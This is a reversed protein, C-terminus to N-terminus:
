KKKEADKAKLELGELATLSDKNGKVLAELLMTHRKASDRIEMTARASPDSDNAKADQLKKRNEDSMGHLVKDIKAAKEGPTKGMMAESLEKQLAKDAIGAKGLLRGVDNSSGGAMGSLEEKSANIGLISALAGMEKGAGKSLSTFREEVGIEYAAMEGAKGGQKALKRKEAISLAGIGEYTSSTDDYHQKHRFAKDISEKNNKYDDATFKGEKFFKQFAPMDEEGIPDSLDRTVLKDAMEAAAKAAPSLGERAKLTEGNVEYKGTKTNQVLYGSNVGAKQESQLKSSVRDYDAQFNASNIESLATKGNAALASLKKMGTNLDDNGGTIKNFEAVMAEQTKQQDGTAYKGAAVNADYDALASGYKSAVASGALAEVRGVDNDSLAVGGNRMASIHSLADGRAKEAIDGGEYMDAIMERSARDEFAQAYGRLKSSTGNLRDAFKQSGGAVDVAMKGADLLGASVDFDGGMLWKSGAVALSGSMSLAGAGVGAAKSYWSAQGWKGEESQNEGTGTLTRGLNEQWETTTMKSSGGPTYEFVQKAIQSAVQGSKEVGAKEQMTQLMAVRQTDTTDKANFKDLIAKATDSTKSKEALEARFNALTEQPSKGTSGLAALKMFETNSSGFSQVAVDTSGTMAAMKLKQNELYKGMNSSGGNSGAKLSTALGGFHRRYTSGTGGIEMRGAIEEIGETVHSTYIDMTSNFWSEVSATGAELIRAGAEQFKAQVHEKKLEIKRKLGEIGSTKAHRSKMDSLDKGHEAAQMAHMQEPLSQVEKIAIDAEDRGLGSFRQFALMARDDMGDPTHGRSSLWQKYVMSQALGGFKELAAGRLRGENRIFNARGVGSLNQHALEMTRGTSMDGGSMWENVADMNLNGNKGAISALFRRGRGSQMFSASQQMQSAALAQRGEAGTQGTANYIDEESIAGIKQALGIQEMTKMGAMAGQRGLGGISRSIQSGINAASSFESMALGTALGGMRMGGSMKIQDAKQFIGSNKMSVMMKQAEELSTGMDHAVTKLTDVMKKFNEKFEAVTRVNQSMGMKGMNSALKSLEGFTQFEGGAGAQGAMGRMADGIQFGQNSTFGMGGQSNMHNFNQRLSQNLGLQQQAGTMMQGGAWSAGAGVVGAAGLVGMGAMGAGFVGAGSNWAGMGARLGLSMPDLGAMGMVASAMPRAAGMGRSMLGGALSDAGGGTSLAVMRGVMSQEQMSHMNQLQDSASFVM